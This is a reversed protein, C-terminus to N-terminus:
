HDNNEDKMDLNTDGKKLERHLWARAFYWDGEVTRPSVDLAKATQEVTLGGHYRLLVIEAARKNVRELRDLAEDLPLLKAPDEGPM